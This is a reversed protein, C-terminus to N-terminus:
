RNCSTHFWYPGYPAGYRHHRPHKYFVVRHQRFYTAWSSRAGDSETDVTRSRTRYSRRLTNICGTPPRGIALWVLMQFCVVEEVWDSMRLWSLVPLHWVSLVLKLGLESRIPFNPSTLLISTAWRRLNPQSYTAGGAAVTPPHHHTHM